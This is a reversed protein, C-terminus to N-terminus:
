SSKLKWGEQTTICHGNLLQKARRRLLCRLCLGVNDFKDGTLKKWVHAAKSDVEFHNEGRQASDAYELLKRRETERLKLRYAYRHTPIKPLPFYKQVFFFIIHVSSMNGRICVALSALAFLIFNTKANVVRHASDTYM